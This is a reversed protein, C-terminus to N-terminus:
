LSDGAITSGTHRLEGPPSGAFIEDLLTRWDATAELGCLVSHIGLNIRNMFVLEKPMAISGGGESARMLDLYSDFLARGYRGDYSFPQRATLPEYLTDLWARLAISPAQVGMEGLAAEAQGYEGIRMASDVERLRLVAASGFEKVCGFDLFSVTGDDHFIYNGPHPDANFLGAVYLSGFVFKFICKGWQNRLLAPARRADEWSMGDCWDMVLVRDTSVDPLIAPIRITPDGRHLNRFETQRKAELRYDLEEGIRDRLEDVLDEVNLSAAPLRFLRAMTGIFLALVRGNRLDAEVNAAADPYQIKVALLSEGHLLRGRHVQGISAAAVAVRDVVLEGPAGAGRLSPAIVDFDRPVAKARLRDFASRYGEAGPLDLFSLLQGVKLVVGRMEALEEALGEFGNPKVLNGLARFTSATRRARHGGRMRVTAEAQKRRIPLATIYRRSDGQALLPVGPVLEWEPLVDTLARFAIEGQLKALVSGICFHTGGGFALHMGKPRDLRFTDPDPFTDPDRNAAGLYLLIRSDEPVETSGLSVPCTTRRAVAHVPPELRLVEEVFDPWSQRVCARAWIEPKELGVRMGEALMAATTVHGSLALAVVLLLTEYEDLNLSEDHIIASLVDDGPHSRRFEVLSSFYLGLEALDSLASEDGGISHGFGAALVRFSAQSWSAFERSDSRPIGLIHCIVSVPLPFALDRFLDAENSADIQEILSAVEARVFPELSRVYRANLHRTAALRLRAHASSDSTFITPLESLLVRSSFKADADTLISSIIGHRAAAYGGFEPSFSVPGAMRLKRYWGWPDQIVREDSLNEVTPVGVPSDPSERLTM